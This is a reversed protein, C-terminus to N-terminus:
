IEFCKLYTLGDNLSLGKTTVRTAGVIEEVQVAANWATAIQQVIVMWYKMKRADSEMGKAAGHLLRRVGARLARALQNM